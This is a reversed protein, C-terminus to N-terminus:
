RKVDQAQAKKFVGMIMDIEMMITAIMVQATVALEM